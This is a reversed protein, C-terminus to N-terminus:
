LDALYTFIESLNGYIRYNAKEDGTHEENNILVLKDGEYYRLTSAWTHSSLAMGAVLLVDANEVANCAKTLRGNDIMEGFFSFGPRLVINCKDCKPTGQVKKIYDSGFIKGCVPCRNEEASGYLEIVNKCGAKQYLGYIMRTVIHSICGAKELKAAAKYVATPEVNTKNLIVNKYYDYFTDVQRSFFPSTIIEEGSYGYQDEIEYVMHEARIGNLGTERMVESGSVLVVNDSSLILEKIKDATKDMAVGGLFVYVKQEEILYGM